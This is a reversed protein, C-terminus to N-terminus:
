LNRYKERLNASNIRKRRKINNGELEKIRNKLIDNENKLRINESVIQCCNCM